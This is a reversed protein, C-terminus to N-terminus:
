EVQELWTLLDDHFFTYALAEYTKKGSVIKPASVSILDNDEFNPRPLKLANAAAQYYQKKTVQTSSVGNFIGGSLNSQLLAHILGVADHQHIL